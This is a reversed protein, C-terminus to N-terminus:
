PQAGKNFARLLAAGINDGAVQQEAKRAKVLEWDYGRKLSATQQDVVGSRLDVEITQAQGYEDVPLTEPWVIDGGNDGKNAMILLRRNIEVLADGYLERKTGLKDISDKFLVRLGFNTLAGLKDAMSSLDMTRSIDFLAQRLFMLFGSSSALDSQMELNAVMGDPGPVQVMEDPGWSMKDASARGRMWTKPHAHYRIIRHLNSAVFNVADQLAIVDDTLESRGYCSGAAPLNKWHHIPPFPFPWEREDVLIWKGGTTHRNEFRRVVWGDTTTMSHEVRERVLIKEADVMYGYEIEYAWVQDKDEPDVEVELLGPDLAVLRPVGDSIGDPLIKLYCTGLVGGFEALDHLLIPKKNAKWVADIYEQEASGSDGELDFEVGKGFLLSVSRDVVLGTLNIALNDDVQGPKVKLPKDHRGHFYKDLKIYGTILQQRNADTIEDVGLWSRMRDRLGDFIGM